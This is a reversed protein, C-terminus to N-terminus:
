LNLSKPGKPYAFKIKFLALHIVLSPFKKQPPSPLKAFKLINLYFFYNKRNKM